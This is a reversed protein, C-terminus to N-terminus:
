LHHKRRADMEIVASILLTHDSEATHGEARIILQHLYSANISLWNTARYGFGVSIRNEEPLHYTNQPGVGVFLEDWVSFFLTKPRMDTHNLAVTSGVRFRLRPRFTYNALYYNGDKDKLEHERWIEEARLRLLIGLRGSRNRYQIQQWFRHENQVVPAPMKGYIFNWIFGYAAPTITLQDNIYIDAGMHFEHQQNHQFESFRLLIDGQIGVYRHLRVSVPASVWLSSQIATKRYSPQASSISPCCLLLCLGITLGINGNM